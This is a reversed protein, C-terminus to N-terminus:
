RRTASRGSWFDPCSSRVSRTSCSGSPTPRSRGCGSAPSRSFSGSRRWRTPTATPWDTACSSSRAERYNLALANAIRSKLLDQNIKYAPDDESYDQLFEGFYSDDHQEGVPQDLSLPDRSMRLVCYTESVTLGAQAATEEVSPEFGNVQTSHLGVSRVKNMTQIMHAPVRITRSQEAIARTIAQRIWWTAYTSFKYGRVHEFKDVARMLGTNGEQILDLFSLGRNRYRKAISVVLRLNAAALSWKAAEYEKQLKELRQIRRRLTSPSQLTARMLHHLESRVEALCSADTKPNLQSLQQSLSEMRAAVERLKELFGQLYQTRLGVEELLRVARRRREALRKWAQCRVAKRQGKRAVLAFDAVNRALLNKLTHLNPQLVNMIRNKERLDIVSVEITRDLRCKGHRVKDLLSLASQLVYDSCLLTRRFRRRARDIRKAAAVEEARSLMPIGGMQMLYIRIPDDVQDDGGTPESAENDLDDATPESADRDNDSVLPPACVEIDRDFDVDSRDAHGNISPKPRCPASRSTQEEINPRSDLTQVRNMLHVTITRRIRDRVPPMLRM